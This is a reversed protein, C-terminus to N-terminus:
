LEDIDRDFEFEFDASRHIISAKCDPSSSFMCVTDAIVHLISSPLRILTDLIYYGSTHHVHQMLNNHHLLLEILEDQVKSCQPPLELGLCAYDAIYMRCIARMYVGSIRVDDDTTPKNDDLLFLKKAAKTTGYPDSSSAHPHLQDKSFVDLLKKTKSDKVTHIHSEHLISLTHMTCNLLLVYAYM